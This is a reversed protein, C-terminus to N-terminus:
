IVWYLASQSLEIQVRSNTVFGAPKFTFVDRARFINVFVETGLM